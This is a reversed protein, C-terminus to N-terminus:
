MAVLNPHVEIVDCCHSLVLLIAASHTAFDGKGAANWACNDHLFILFM